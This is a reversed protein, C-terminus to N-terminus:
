DDDEDPGVAKGSSIEVHKKQQAATEYCQEEELKPTECVLRENGPLDEGHQPCTLAVFGSAVVERVRSM